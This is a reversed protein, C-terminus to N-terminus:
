AKRGRVRVDAIMLVRRESPCDFLRESAASVREGTVPSCPFLPDPCCSLSLSYSIFSLSFCCNPLSLSFRSVSQLLADRPQDSIVVDWEPSLIVKVKERDNMEASSPSTLLM